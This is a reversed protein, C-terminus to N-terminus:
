GSRGEGNYKRAALEELAAFEDRLESLLRYADACARRSAQNNRHYLAGSRDLAKLTEWLRGAYEYLWHDADGAAAAGENGGPSGFSDTFLASPLTEVATKSRAEKVAHIDQMTLRAKGEEVFSEMLKSQQGPPLKAAAEAVSMSCSGKRLAERLRGDAVAFRKRRVIEQPKLGTLDGIQRDDLGKALLRDTAEIDALLNEARLRNLKICLVDRQATSVRTILAPVTELEHIMAARYRRRGSIIHYKSSSTQQLILPEIVGRFGIDEILERSPEIADAPSIIESLPQAPEYRHEVQEEKLLKFLKEQKEM